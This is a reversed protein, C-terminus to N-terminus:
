LYVCPCTSVCLCVATESVEFRPDSERSHVPPGNLFQCSTASGQIDAFLCAGTAVERVVSVCQKIRCVCIM